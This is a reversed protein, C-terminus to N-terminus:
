FNIRQGFILISEEFGFMGFDIARSLVGAPNRGTGIVSSVPASASLSAARNSLFFM